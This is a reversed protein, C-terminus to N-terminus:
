LVRKIKCITHAYYQNCLVIANTEDVIVIGGPALDLVTRLATLLINNETDMCTQLIIIFLLVKKTYIVDILECFM